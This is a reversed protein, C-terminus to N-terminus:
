IRESGQVTLNTEEGKGIIREISKPLALPIDLSLLGKGVNEVRQKGLNYKVDERWVRATSARRIQGISDEFSVINIQLDPLTLDRPAGQYFGERQEETRMFRFQGPVAYHYLLGSLADYEVVRRKFDCTSPLFGPYFGLSDGLLIYGVPVEGKEAIYYRIDLQRGIRDLDYSVAQASLCVPALISSVVLACAAGLRALSVKRSM